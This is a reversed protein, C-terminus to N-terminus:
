AAEAREVLKRLRGHLSELAAVTGDLPTGGPLDRAALVLRGLDNMARCTAEVEEAIVMVGSRRDAPSAVDLHDCLLRRVYSSDSVQAARAAEALRERLTVSLQLGFYTGLPRGPDVPRLGQSPRGSRRATLPSTNHAGIGPKREAATHQSDSIM